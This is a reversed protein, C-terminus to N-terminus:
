LNGYESIKVKDIFVAYVLQKELAAASKALAQASVKSHMQAIEHNKTSLVQFLEEYHTDELSEEIRSLEEATVKSGQLLNLAKGREFSVM